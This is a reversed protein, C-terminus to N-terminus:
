SPTWTLSPHCSTSRSPVSRCAAPRCALETGCLLKEYTNSAPFRPGLSSSHLSSPNRPAATGWLSLLSSAELAETRSLTDDNATFGSDVGDEASTSPHDGPPRDGCVASDSLKTYTSSPSLPRPAVLRSPRVTRRPWAMRPWKWATCCRRWSRNQINIDVFYKQLGKDKDILNNKVTDIVQKLKKIEKRAEKLALQAEM